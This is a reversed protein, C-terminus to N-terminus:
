CVAATAPLVLSREEGVPLERQDVTQPVVHNLRTQAFDVDGVRADRDGVDALLELQLVLLVRLVNHGLRNPVADNVGRQVV